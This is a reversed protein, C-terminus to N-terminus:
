FHSPSSPLRFILSVSPAITVSRIRITLPEKWFNQNITPYTQLVKSTCLDISNRSFHFFYSNETECIAGWYSDGGLQTVINSKSMTDFLKGASRTDGCKCYVNLLNNLKVYDVSELLFNSSYAPLVQSSSLSVSGLTAFSEISQRSSFPLMHFMLPTSFPFFRWLFQKHPLM